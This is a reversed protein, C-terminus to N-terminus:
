FKSHMDICPGGAIVKSAEFGLGSNAGTVIVVRGALSNQMCSCPMIFQTLLKDVAGSSNDVAPQLIV